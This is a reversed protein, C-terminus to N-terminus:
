ESTPVAAALGRRSAHGSKRLLSGVQNAVTRESTGRERAIAANTWGESLLRLVERESATFSALPPALGDPQLVRAALRVVETRSSCGTKSAASGLAESVSAFSLGLSYAVLKGSLGRASLELVSAERATLSRASWVHAPHEYVHYERRAGAIHEVLGFRGGVLASWADIAGPRQREARLRSREVTKVHQSLQGRTAADRGQGEADLVRGEVDLVAVPTAGDVRIRLAVEVHASARTLALRDRPTLGIEHATMSFLVMSTGNGGQSILSVSDTLGLNQLFQDGIVQAGPIRKRIRSHTDVHQPIRYYADLVVPDIHPLAAGFSALPGVAHAATDGAVLEWHDSHRQVVAAVVLPADPVLRRTADVLDDLWTQLSEQGAHASEVVSVAHKQDVRLIAMGPM